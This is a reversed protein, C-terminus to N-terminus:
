KSRNNITETAQSGEYAKDVHDMALRTFAQYIMNNVTTDNASRLERYEIKAFCHQDDHLSSNTKLRVQFSKSSPQFVNSGITNVEKEM